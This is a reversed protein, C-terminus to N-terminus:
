AASWVLTCVTSFVETGSENVLQKLSVRRPQDSPYNTFFVAEFSTALIHFLVSDHIAHKKQNLFLLPYFFLAIVKVPLREIDEIPILRKLTFLNNEPYCQLPLSIKKFVCSKVQNKKICILQTGACDRMKDITLLYLHCARGNRTFIEQNNNPPKGVLNYRQLCFSIRCVFSAVSSM